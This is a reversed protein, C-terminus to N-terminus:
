LSQASSSFNCPESNALHTPRMVSLAAFGSGATTNPDPDTIKFLDSRLGCKSFITPLFYTFNQLDSRSGPQRELTSKYGTKTWSRNRIRNMEVRIRQSLNPVKEASFFFENICLNAELRLMTGVLFHPIRMKQISM